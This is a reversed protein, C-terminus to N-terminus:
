TSAGLHTCLPQPRLCPLSPPAMATTLLISMWQTSL